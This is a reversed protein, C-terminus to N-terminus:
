LLRFKLYKIDNGEAHFKLEYKTKIEFHEALLPSNYLDFTYELDAIGPYEKLVELSYEFLPGNDTKFFIWGGPKLVQKYLDLFNPSTLRRKIDRDRPRPDPFTIWIESVENEAFHEKLLDIKTRLFAVNTLNNNIAVTSGYWIRSGKIDIGVFNKNPFHPALGTSYEGRGCALELVIENDNKFHTKCWNGKIPNIEGYPFDVINYRSTNEEFRKKKQRAM